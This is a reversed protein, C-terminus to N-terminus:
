YEREVVLIDADGLYSDRRRRVVGGRSLGLDTLPCSPDVHSHLVRSQVRQRAGDVDIELDLLDYSSGVGHDVGIVELAVLVHSVAGVAGEDLVGVGSHVPGPCGRPM